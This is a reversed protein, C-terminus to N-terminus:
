LYLKCNKNCIVTKFSSCSEQILCDNDVWALEQKEQWIKLMEADILSRIYGCSNPITELYKKQVSSLKILKTETFEHKKAM